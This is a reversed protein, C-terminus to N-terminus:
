VLVNLLMGYLKIAPQVGDNSVQEKTAFPEKFISCINQAIRSNQEVFKLIARKGQGFKGKSTM